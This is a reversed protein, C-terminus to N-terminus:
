TEEQLKQCDPCYSVKVKSAREAAAEALMGKMEAEWHKYALLQVDDASDKPWLDCSSGHPCFFAMFGTTIELGCKDCKPEDNM